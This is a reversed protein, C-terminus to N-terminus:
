SSDLQKMVREVHDMSVDAGFIGAGGSSGVLTQDLCLTKLEDVDITGSNDTDLLEFLEQLQRMKADSIM